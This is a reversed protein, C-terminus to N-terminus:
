SQFPEPSYAILFFIHRWLDPLIHISTQILIHSTCNGWFLHRIDLTTSMKDSGGWHVSLITYEVYWCMLAKIGRRKTFYFDVPLYIIGWM